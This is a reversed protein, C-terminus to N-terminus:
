EKTVFTYQKFGLRKTLAVIEPVETYAILKSCGQQKKYEDLVKLGPIWISIPIEKVAFVSYLLLNREQTAADIDLTTAIFGFVREEVPKEGEEVGAWLQMNGCMFSQLIRFVTEPTKDVKPILNTIFLPRLREWYVGIQEPSLRVLM